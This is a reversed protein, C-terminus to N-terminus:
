AHVYPGTPCLDRFGEPSRFDDFIESGIAKPRVKAKRSGEKFGGRVMGSGERFEGQGRHDPGALQQRAKFVLIKETSELTPGVM